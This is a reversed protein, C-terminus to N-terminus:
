AGPREDASSREPRVSRGPEPRDPRIARRQVARAAPTAKSFDTVDRRRGVGVAGNSYFSIVNGWRAAPSISRRSTATAASRRRTRPSCRARRPAPDLRPRATAARSASSRGSRPIPSSRRPPGGGPGRRSRGHLRPPRQRPRRAPRDPGLGRAGAVGRLLESRNEWRSAPAVVGVTDGPASDPPSARRADSPPRMPSMGHLEDRPNTRSCSRGTSRSGGIEGASPTAGDVVLEALIRGFVSAFKFAHAAGLAVLVNPRTPCGTWSSTGIRRSRTSAPRRTSRPGSPGPLHRQLFRMSRPCARGRDVTSRGRRGPQDGRRRRRGPRGEPGARRLDPLRLLSPEDMWIWVPFRDPAFDEPRPCDFYTVQERTITLPLHRGFSALLENTWADAALVVHGARHVTGDAARWRRDGGGADRLATVPARELLTAGHARALRQHAANARNPDALGRTPRSCGHHEDGLRWQPWRRM